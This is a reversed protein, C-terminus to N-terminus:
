QRLSCPTSPIEDEDLSEDGVLGDLSIYENIKGLLAEKQEPSFNEENQDNKKIIKDLIGSRTATFASTMMMSILEDKQLPTLSERIPNVLVELKDRMTAINGSLVGLRKRQKDTPNNAQLTDIVGLFQNFLNKLQDEELFDPKQNDFIADTTITLDDKYINLLGDITIAYKGNDVDQPAESALKKLHAGAMQGYLMVCGKLLLNVVEREEEDTCSSLNLAEKITPLLKQQEDLFAQSMSKAVRQLYVGFKGEKSAKILSNYAKRNSILSMPLDNFIRAYDGTQKKALADKNKTLFDGELVQKFESYLLDDYQLEDLMANKDDVLGNIDSGMRNTLYYSSAAGLVIGTAGLLAKGIAMAFLVFFPATIGATLVSFAICAAILILGVIGAIIDKLRLSEKTNITKLKNFIADYRGFLPNHVDRALDMSLGNATLELIETLVELPIGSFINKKAQGVQELILHATPKLYGDPTTRDGHNSRQEVLRKAAEYAKQKAQYQEFFDFHM